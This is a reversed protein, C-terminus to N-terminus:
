DNLYAVKTFSSRSIFVKEQNDQFGLSHALALTIDNRKSIYEFEKSGISLSLNSAEAELNQQLVVNGITARVFYAYFGTLLVLVGFLIWFINKETNLQLVREVM